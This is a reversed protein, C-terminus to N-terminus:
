LLRRLDEEGQHGALVYVRRDDSWSLTTVGSNLVAVDRAAGSPINRLSDRDMVFLHVREQNRLEFCVFSVKRGNWDLVRCGLSPLGDLGTPILFDDPANRGNFWQRLATVDRSMLDLRGGTDGAVAGAYSRFDEFRAADTSGVSLAVITVLLAVCAAAAALWAPKRWWRPPTVVIRRAALLRSKLEPPVPFANFKEALRRDLEQERSFWRALEPDQKLIELAERFQPENSERGDV